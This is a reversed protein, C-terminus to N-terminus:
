LSVLRKQPTDLSLLMWSISPNGRRRGKGERGKKGRREGTKGKRERWGERKGKVQKEGVLCM